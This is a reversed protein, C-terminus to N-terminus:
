CRTRSIVDSAEGDGIFPVFVVATVAASVSSLWHRLVFLLKLTQSGVAVTFNENNSERMNRRSVAM